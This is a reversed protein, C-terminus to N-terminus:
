KLAQVEQDWYSAPPLAGYPNAGTLPTVYIYGAHRQSSLTLVNQLQSQPTNYVIHWFRAAPYKRVWAAPQWNKYSEYPSEFNVLIDSANIYCEPANTGYNIISIDKGAKSKIYNNINQYYALKSCDSSYGEDLFIGDVKYWNYYADIDAYVASLPRNTYSTYVYGLVKGGAAQTSQTQKVYDQSINTGPGSNPNIIAIDTTPVSKNIKGWDCNPNTACDPYIYSPIAIKQIVCSNGIIFKYTNIPSLEGGGNSTQAGMVLNIPTKCQPKIGLTSFPMSWKVTNNTNAFTINGLYQWNWIPGNSLSKYAWSNELMRDAGIGNVLYGTKSNMDVDIFVHYFPVALSSKFTVYLYQDDNNIQIDTIAAHSIPILLSNTLFIAGLYFSKLANLKMINEDKFNPLCTSYLHYFM